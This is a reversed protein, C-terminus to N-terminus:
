VTIKSEVVDLINDLEAESDGLKAKIKAIRVAAKIAKLDLREKYDDFLAKQDEYLCKKESEIRLYKEIFEEVTEKTTM